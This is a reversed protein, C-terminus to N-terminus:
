CWIAGPASERATTKRDRVRSVPGVPLAQPFLIFSGRGTLM